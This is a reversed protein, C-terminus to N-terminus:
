DQQMSEADVRVIRDNVRDLIFLKDSTCAIKDDPGLRYDIDAIGRDQYGDPQATFRMSQPVCNGDARITWGTGSVVVERTESDITVTYSGTSDTRMTGDHTELRTGTESSTITACTEYTDDNVELLELVVNHPDSVEVTNFPLETPESLELTADDVITTLTLQQDNDYKLSTSEGPEGSWEYLWRASNESDGTFFPVATRGEVVIPEGIWFQDGETVTSFDGPERFGSVGMSIVAYVADDPAQLSGPGGFYNN